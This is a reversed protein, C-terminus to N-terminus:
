SADHTFDANVLENSMSPQEKLFTRLVAAPGNRPDLGVSAPPALDLYASHSRSRPMWGRRIPSSRIKSRDSGRRDIRRARCARCSRRQPRVRAGAIAGSRAAAFKASAFASFNRPAAVTWGYRRDPHHRGAARADYAAHVSQASIMAGLCAVRWAQEFESLRRRSPVAQDGASASQPDARRHSGAYHNLAAAVEDAQTIDCALHRTTAAPRTRRTAQSTRSARDSRSLGIVDHGGPRLDRRYCRRSRRGVGTLLCRRSPRAM